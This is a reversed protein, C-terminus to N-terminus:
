FNYIFELGYIRPTSITAPAFVPLIGQIAHTRYQEDTLNDVYATLQWSQTASQFTLSADVIGFSDGVQPETNTESYYVKANYRYQVRPLITGFGVPIAYQGYATVQWKPARNLRNGAHNNFVGNEDVYPFSTYKADLYSLSGGLSLGEVPQAAVELEVGKIRASEANRSVIFGRESVRVQPDTYDARFVAINVRLRQDLLESKLGAEYSWVYEPDFGNEQGPMIPDFYNWGGTRFGRTASMYFTLDEMPQYNLVFKPTFADFSKSDPVYMGECMNVSYDSEEAYTGVCGLWNKKDHTWRLGAIFSFDGFTVHAEGFLAYSRSHIDAFFNLGFPPPFVPDVENLRLYGATRASSKEDFYSAGALFNLPGSFETALRLEANFQSNKDNDIFNNARFPGGDSDTLQFSKSEAYGTVFTVVYNTFDMNATGSTGWFTRRDVNGWNAPIIDWPLGDFLDKFAVPVNTRGRYGRLVIDLNEAGYYHLASSLYNSDKGGYSENRIPNDQWGDRESLSGSIKVALGDTLPQMIYGQVEAGDYNSGRIVTRAAFEDGPTLTSINIAGGTANRGYLTGQPGRLIEIRDIDAFDFIAGTIRAQYIGDIYIGVGEDAGLGNALSGIGRITIPNSGSGANGGIYLGPALASLDRLDAVGARELDNASFATIAIPTDQLRTERKTATVVIDEITTAAYRNNNSRLSEVEQSYVVCPALITIIFPSFPVRM